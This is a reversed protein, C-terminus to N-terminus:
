DTSSKGTKLPNVNPTSSINPGREGTDLFLLAQELKEIVSKVTSTSCHNPWLVLPLGWPKGWFYVYQSQRKVLSATRVFDNPPASFERSIWVQFRPQDYKEFSFQVVDIQDGVVREFRLDNPDIASGSGQLRNDVLQFGAQELRLSAGAAVLASLHRTQPGVRSQWREFRKRHKTGVAPQAM